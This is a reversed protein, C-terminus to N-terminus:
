PSVNYSNIGYRIIINFIMTQFPTNFITNRRGSLFNLRAVTELRCTFKLNNFFHGGKIMAMHKVQEELLRLPPLNNRV